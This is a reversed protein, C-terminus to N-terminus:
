FRFPYRQYKYKPTSKTTTKRKPTPTPEPEEEEEEEEEVDDDDQEEQEEQEEKETEGAEEQEKALREAEEKARIEECKHNIQSLLLRQDYYGARKFKTITDVIQANTLQLSSLKQNIKPVTLLAYSLASTFIEKNKNTIDLAFIYPYFSMGLTYLDDDSLPGSTESQLSTIKHNVEIWSTVGFVHKRDHVLTNYNLTTVSFTGEKTGINSVVYSYLVSKETKEDYFNAAVVFTQPKDWKISNLRNFHKQFLATEKSTLGKFNTGIRRGYMTILRELKAEQVSLKPSSVSVQFDQTPKDCHSVGYNIYELPIKIIGYILASFFVM